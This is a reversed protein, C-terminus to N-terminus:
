HSHFALGVLAESKRVAGNKRGVGEYGNSSSSSMHMFGVIETGVFEISKPKNIQSFFTVLLISVLQYAQIKFEQPKPIASACPLNRARRSEKKFEYRSQPLGPLYKAAFSIFVM